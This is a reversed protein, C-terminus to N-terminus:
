RGVGRAGSVEHRWGWTIRAHSGSGLRHQVVKVEPERVDLTADLWGDQMSVQSVAAQAVRLKDSVEQSRNGSFHINTNVRQVAPLSSQFKQM